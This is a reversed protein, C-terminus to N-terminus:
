VPGIDIRIESTADGRKNRNRVVPPGFLNNLGDPFEYQRLRM